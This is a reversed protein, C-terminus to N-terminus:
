VRELNYMISQIVNLYSVRQGLKQSDKEYLKNKNLTHM